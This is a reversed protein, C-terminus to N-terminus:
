IHGQKLGTISESNRTEFLFMDKFILANAQIIPPSRRDARIKFVNHCGMEICRMIPCHCIVPVKAVLRTMRKTSVPLPPLPVCRLITRINANTHLDRNNTSIPIQRGAQCQVTQLVTTRGREAPLEPELGYFPKSFRKVQAGTQRFPFPPASRCAVFERSKEEYELRPFLKCISINM